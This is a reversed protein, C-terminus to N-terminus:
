FVKLHNKWVHVLVSHMPEVGSEVKTRWNGTLKLQGVQKHGVLKGRSLQHHGERCSARPILLSTEGRFGINGCVCKWLLFVWIPSRTTAFRNSRYNNKNKLFFIVHTPFRTPIARKKPKSISISGSVVSRSDNRSRFLIFFYFFLSSLLLLSSSFFLLLSSSRAPAAM